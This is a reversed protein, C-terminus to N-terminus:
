LEADVLEKPPVPIPQSTAGCTATADEEMVIVSM